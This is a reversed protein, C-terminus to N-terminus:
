LASSTVAADDKVSNQLACNEKMLVDKAVAYNQNMIMLEVFIKIVNGLPGEKSCCDFQPLFKRPFDSWWRFPSSVLCLYLSSSSSSSTDEMEVIDCDENCPILPNELSLLLSIIARFLMRSHVPKKTLWSASQALFSSLAPVMPDPFSLDLLGKVISVCFASIEVLNKCPIEQFSKSIEEFQNEELQEMVQVEMTSPIYAPLLSSSVEVDWDRCLRLLESTKSNPTKVQCLSSALKQILEKSIEQFHLRTLGTLAASIVSPLNSNAHKLGQRILIEMFRSPVQFTPHHALYNMAIQFCPAQQLQQQAPENNQNNNSCNGWWLFDRFQPEKSLIELVIEYASDSLIFGKEAALRFPEWLLTLSRQKDAKFAVSDLLGSPQFAGILNNFIERASNMDLNAPRPHLELLKILDSKMTQLCGFFFADKEATIIQESVEMLVKLWLEESWKAKNSNFIGVLRHLRKDERAQLMKPLEAPFAEAILHFFNLYDEETVDHNHKCRAIQHCQGFELVKACSYRQLLLDLRKKM